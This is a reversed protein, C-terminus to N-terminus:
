RGEERITSPIMGAERVSRLRVDDDISQVSFTTAGLSRSRKWHANQSLIGFVLMCLLFLFAFFTLWAVHRGEKKVFSASLVGSFLLLFAFMLVTGVVLPDTWSVINQSQSGTPRLLIGSFICAGLLLIAGGVAKRCVALSWELTPLKLKSPASRKRRLRRDQVLYLIGAVFGVSVCLTALFFTGAHIRKWLPNIRAAADVEWPTLPRAEPSNPILVAGGILLLVIPLVILGFPIKAHFCHLYLYILILGWASVLFYSDAGDIPVVSVSHRFYLYATHASLGAVVWGLSFVNRVPSRFFIRSIELCLAVFYSATFCLIGVGSM